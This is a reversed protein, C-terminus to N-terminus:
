PSKWYVQISTWRKVMKTEKNFELYAEKIPEEIGKCGTRIIDLIKKVKLHDIYVEGDYKIYILYFSYIM